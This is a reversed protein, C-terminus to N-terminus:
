WYIETYWFDVNIYGDWVVIRTGVILVDDFLFVFNFNWVLNREQSSNWDKGLKRKKPNRKLEEEDIDSDSCM